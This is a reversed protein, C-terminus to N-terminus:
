IKSRLTLFGVLLGIAIIANTILLAVIGEGSTLFAVIFTIAGIVLLLLQATGFPQIREKHWLYIAKTTNFIAYAIVLTFGAGDLGYVPILWLNLGIIAVVLGSIAVLNWKFHPGNSLIEGNSGFSYDIVRSL